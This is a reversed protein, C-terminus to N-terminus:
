SSVGVAAAEGEGAGAGAGAGASARNGKNAAKKRRADAAAAAANLFTFFDMAEAHFPCDDNATSVLGGGGCTCQHEPVPCNDALPERCLCLDEGEKEEEAAKRKEADNWRQLLDVGHRTMRM